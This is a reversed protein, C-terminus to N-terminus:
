RWEWCFLEFVEVGLVKAIRFLARIGFDFNNNMKKQYTEFNIKCMMYFKSRSVKNEKMFRKILETKIENKM